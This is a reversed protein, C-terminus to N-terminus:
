LRSKIEGFATVVAAVIRGINFSIVTRKAYEKVAKHGSADQKAGVDGADTGDFLIDRVLAIEEALREGFGARSLFILDETLDTEIM